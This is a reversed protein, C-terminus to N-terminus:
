VKHSIELLYTKFYEFSVLTVASAPVTRLLNIGYGAYFGRLGETKYIRFIAAALKGKGNEPKNSKTQIQMRTRLIEHPYTITSAIMKSLASAVILRGLLTNSHTIDGSHLFKKLKEYVPFHIGVHLLGFLSPVLGSYFVKIGEERYMKSFADITGKYYTRKVKDTSAKAKVSDYITHGKGTQIMLRTKVVWIPNVACSSTIGATLASLFHTASDREIGLYQHLISPYLQKTREYVTFYITWTPLYGITIPVLGRYLGRIGEERVITKFAGLFGKYKITTNSDSRLMAGQAQLRTKVVDLPCVIVGALFGSAAGAMTVIQNASCHQLLQPSNFSLISFKRHIEFTREKSGRFELDEGQVVDSFDPRGLNHKEGRDAM